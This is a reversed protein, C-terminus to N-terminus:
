EDYVSDSEADFDPYVADKESLVPADTPWEIAFAPDNWRIGGEAEPAYPTSVQYFLHTDDCLTIFGHAFGKPVYLMTENEETLEVGIHKGFTSSGKRIDIIVDILAGRICRVLKAQAATGKQFHMGRLTHKPKSISLNTQVYESEIGADEFMSKVYTMRFTGRNDGFARTTITYAGALQTEKFTFLGAM